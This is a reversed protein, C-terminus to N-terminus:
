HDRSWRSRCAKGVRREESRAKFLSRRHHYVYLEPEYYIGTNYKRSLEICLRTDEGPYMGLEFGGLKVFTSRRMVLNAAPYDYVLQPSMKRSRFVGAGMSGAYSEWVLGGASKLLGDSPPTLLPGGAAYVEPNNFLEVVREIYRPPVYVDDDNFVIIEGRGFGIVKNRKSAPDGTLSKDVILKAFKQKVHFRKTSSLLVEFGMYTQQAYSELAEFLYESRDELPIVVIIRIKQAM